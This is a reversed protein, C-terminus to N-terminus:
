IKKISDMTEKVSRAREIGSFERSFFSSDASVRIVNDDFKIDKLLNGGIRGNIFRALNFDPEAFFKNLYREQLYLESVLYHKSDGVFIKEKLFYDMLKREQYAPYAEIFQKIYFFDNMNIPNKDHLTLYYYKIHGIEHVLTILDLFNHKRNIKLYPYSTFNSFIAEGLSSNKNIDIINGEGMLNYLISLSHYDQDSKYFKKLIVFIDRDNLPTYEDFSFYNKDFFSNIIKEQRKYIDVDLGYRMITEADLIYKDAHKQIANWKEKQKDSLELLKKKVTDFFKNNFIEDNFLLLYVYLSLLEEIDDSKEILDLTKILDNKISNLNNGSISIDENRLLNVALM